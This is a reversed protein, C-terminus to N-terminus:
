RTRFDRAFRKGHQLKNIKHMSLNVDDFIYRLEQYTKIIFLELLGFINDPRAVQSSQSFLSRFCLESLGHNTIPRLSKKM